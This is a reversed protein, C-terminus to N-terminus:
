VTQERGTAANHGCVAPKGQNVRGACSGLGVCPKIRDENGDRLKRILHPDAIHARTMGVLDVYGGSVAHNATALDAIGGVHLIPLSVENRIRQANHPPSCIPTGDAQGM